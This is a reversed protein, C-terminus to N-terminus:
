NMNNYGLQRIIKNLLFEDADPNFHGVVEYETNGNKVTFDMDPPICHLSKQERHTKIIPPRAMLSDIRDKNQRIYKETEILKAEDSKTM